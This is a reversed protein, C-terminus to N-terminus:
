LATNSGDSTPRTESIRSQPISVTDREGVSIKSLESEGRIRKILVYKGDASVVGDALYVDTRIPFSEFVNVFPRPLYFRIGRMEDARRQMDDTWHGYQTPTPVKQVRVSACGVHPSLMAAAALLMLVLSVLNFVRWGQRCVVRLLKAM